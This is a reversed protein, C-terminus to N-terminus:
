AERQRLRNTDLEAEAHGHRHHLDPWHPHAHALPEHRHWHSHRVDPALGAHAHGHHGDDHRHAHVHEISAHTHLHSHRSALLLGVSGALLAAAAAHAATLPDGLWAWALGAGLFPASAFCAQARTAGLSQAAAIYLSISVGYCLAGVALAAAWPWAGSSQPELWLGAAFNLSGAALGKWFTSRAPSMGDILATWHNDLAWCSCAAAVLAGALWGPWGGGWSVVAGAAVVGAAGLWGRRTLHEGFLAVGLVATAALELNLLLAVSAADALRLAALLLLPGAVGGAAIAGALRRRNRADLRAGARATTAERALLPAMALAAGLYLLGALTFPGLEALLAKALPTSAGFLAASVLALAIGQM